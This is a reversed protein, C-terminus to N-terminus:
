ARGGTNLRRDVRKGNAARGNRAGRPRPRLVFRVTAARLEDDPMDRYPHALSAREVPLSPWRTVEVPEVAFAARDFVELMEALRLRNTYFGGGRILKSEWVRESFRLHHLSQGMMDRLDVSHVSCGDDRIVRRLEAITEAFQRRHIAQLVSNSYIFDISGAPLSRLSELGHVEYRAGCAALVDDLSRASSLEPADLGRRSLLDAMDRYLSVDRSAFDAVDVFRSETAGHARAAVACLLSDGPGLELVSFGGGKRGFNAADFHQRFVDYAFQPDDMGGHRALSLSRLFSYRLPLRALTLKLAGKAWWPVTQRVRDRLAINM